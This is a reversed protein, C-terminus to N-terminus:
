KEPKNLFEESLRKVHDRSFHYLTFWSFYNKENIKKIYNNVNYNHSIKSTNEM